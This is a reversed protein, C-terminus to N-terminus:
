FNFVKIVFCFTLKFAKLSICTGAQIVELILCIYAEFAKCFDNCIRNALSNRFTFNFMKINKFINIVLEIGVFFINLVLKRLNLNRFAVNISKFLTKFSCHRFNLVTYQTLKFAKSRILFLFVFFEAISNFFIRSFDLLFNFFDVAGEVAEFFSCGAAHTSLNLFEFRLEVLNKRGLAIFNIRVKSFPLM